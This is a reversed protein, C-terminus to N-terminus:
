NSPTIEFVTGFGYEGGELSTGYLNGARDLILASDPDSADDGGGFNHLIKEKWGGAGTNSLEFATGFHPGGAYTTGYLSGASDLVLSSIVFSGDMGDGFNHLTAETWHGDGTPSLEFAAGGGFRGGGSTGGYLNGSSDFILGATPDYGATGSSEFEFLITETWVGGASPTLEFVTGCGRGEPTCGGLHGGYATTGYLNGAADFILGGNPVKGDLAESFGHLLKGIWRGGATPVLEYVAGGNSTTVGYLNGASDFTLAGYPYLSDGTFGRGFVHITTAQWSGDAEPALQYATLETTGYLNGAADFVLGSTPYGALEFSHLVKETWGGGVKPTLEFAVGSDYAGGYYTTGYLNGASDLILESEPQFGARFNNQFNLLVKEQGTSPTVCVAAIATVLIIKLNTSFRSCLWSTSM